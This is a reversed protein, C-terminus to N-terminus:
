VNLEIIKQLDAHYITELEGRNKEILKGLDRKVNNVFDEENENYFMYIAYAEDVSIAPAQSLDFEDVVRFNGKHNKARFSIKEDTLETGSEDRLSSVDYYNFLLIIPEDYEELYSEFLKFAEEEKSSRRPLPFGGKKLGEYLWYTSYGTEGLVHARLAYQAAIRPDATLYVNNYQFWGQKELRGKVVVYSDKVKNFIDGIQECRDNLRLESENYARISYQMIIECASAIRKREEETYLLANKNGGHFLLPKSYNSFVNTITNDYVIDSIKKTEM